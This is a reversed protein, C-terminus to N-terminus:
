HWCSFDCSMYNYTLSKANTIFCPKLIRTGEVLNKCDKSNCFGEMSELVERNNLQM